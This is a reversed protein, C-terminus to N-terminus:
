TSLQTDSLQLPSAPTGECPPRVCGSNTVKNLFIGRAKPHRGPYRLYLLTTVIRYKVWDLEIDCSETIRRGGDNM